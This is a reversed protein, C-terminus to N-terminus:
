NGAAAKKVKADQLSAQLASMLDITQVAAAVKPEITLPTGSVKAELMRKTAVLARDFKKAPEFATTMADILQGAVAVFKQDAAAPIKDWGAFERVEYEFFIHHMVIGRGYPRLIVTNEHGRQSYRGVAYVNQNTMGDRLLAFQQEGGNELGVFCTDAFYIPDVSGAPVFETITLQEESMVNASKIEEETVLVFKGKEYEYGKVQDAKPVSKECTPCYMDQMKLRTNCDKHLNNFSFRVEDTGKFVKVKFAMMGMSLTLNSTAKSATKKHFENEEPVVPSATASMMAALEASIETATKVKKTEETKAAKAM